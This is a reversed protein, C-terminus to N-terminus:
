LPSECLTGPCATPRVRPVPGQLGLPPRSFCSHAFRGPWLSESAAPPTHPRAPFARSSRDSRASAAPSPVACGPRRRGPARQVANGVRGGALLPEAASLAGGGTPASPTPGAGPGSPEGRSDRPQLRWTYEHCVRTGKETVWVRSPQVRERPRPQQQPRPRRVVHKRNAATRPARGGNLLTVM